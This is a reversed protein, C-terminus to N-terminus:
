TRDPKYFNNHKQEAELVVENYRDKIELINELKVIKRDLLTKDAKGNHAWDEDGCPVYIPNIGLDLAPMMDSRWSNGVFYVNASDRGLSLRRLGNSKGSLDTQVNPGSFWKNLGLVELKRRQIYYDGISMLALDSHMDSSLFDLVKEAGRFVGSEAWNDEDFVSRGIEYVFDLDISFDRKDHGLESLIDMYALRFSEPFCETDFGTIEILSLQHNDHKGNIHSYSFKEAGPITNKVYDVFRNQSRHYHEKTPILTDDLDFIWLKGM